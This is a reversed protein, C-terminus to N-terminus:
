QHRKANVPMPWVGYIDNNRRQVRAMPPKVSRLHGTVTLVFTGEDHRSEGDKSFNAGESGPFALRTVFQSRKDGDFNDNDWGIAMGDYPLINGNADKFPHPDFTKLAGRNSTEGILVAEDPDDVLSRSYASLPAFMGYSLGFSVNGKDPDQSRSLEKPDASPCVYSARPNMFEKIKSAWTNPAGAAQLMPEDAPGTDFLVPFKEDNQTAYQSVSEMVAKMNLICRSKESRRQLVNFVPWLLISFVVLGVAVIKVDKRSVYASGARSEGEPATPDFAEVQSL